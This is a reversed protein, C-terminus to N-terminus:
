KNTLLQNGYYYNVCEFYSADLAKVYQLVVGFHLQSSSFPILDFLKM